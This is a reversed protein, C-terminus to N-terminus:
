VEKPKGDTGPRLREASVDMCGGGTREARRGVRELELRPGRSVTGDDGIRVESSWSAVVLKTRGVSRFFFNAGAGNIIGTWGFISAISITAVWSGPIVPDCEETAEVDDRDDLGSLTLLLLSDFGRLM